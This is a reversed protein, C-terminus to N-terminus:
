LYNVIINILKQKFNTYPPYILKLFNIRGSKIYSRENSFEKFGFIGHARGIGSYKVGGFPLNPHTFQLVVENIGVGGSETKSTITKITNKNRSFIYLALPANHKNVWDIASEIKDFEIIPLLPGFIEEESIKCDKCNTLIITPEIFRDKLDYKGGFIIKSDNTLANKVMEVLRTHHHGNIIKPYNLNTKIENTDKGFVHKIEAVLLDTFKSRIKKDILIYDPAVCTQGKSIFKGWVIKEVASKLDATNDVIVPSKGGLELTLSTLNEAASKAIAKGVTTSGTFFIHDFPLKLLEEAVNKDGQIVTVENRPFLESIMEDILRTTNLSIESPKIIVTNGAAIASILPGIALLFPYNWPSIILVIGKAEFKTYASYTFLTFTRKVKKIKMWKAINRQAHKLESLVPYIETLDTESFSKNFDAYIAKKINERNRFIWNYIRNLKEKREKTSTNKQIFKQEAHLRFLNEM